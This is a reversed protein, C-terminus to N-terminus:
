RPKILQPAPSDRAGALDAFRRQTQASWGPILETVVGREDVVISLPVTMDDTAYLQEVTAVGGILIPYTVRRGALFEKVDTDAETDVNLGILDIGRAALKATLAQLEPMESACPTCWTAWINILLRRGPKLQKR